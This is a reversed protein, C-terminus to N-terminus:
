SIALRFFYGAIVLIVLGGVLGTTDFSFPTVSVSVLIFSLGTLFLGGSIGALVARSVIKKM